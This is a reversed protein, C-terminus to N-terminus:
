MFFSLNFIHQYTKLNEGEVENEFKAELKAMLKFEVKYATAFDV